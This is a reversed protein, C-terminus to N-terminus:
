RTGGRDPGLKGVKSRRLLYIAQGKTMASEVNWIDTDASGARVQHGVALAPALPGKLAANHAQVEMAGRDDFNLQPVRDKHLVFGTLATWGGSQGARYELVIGDFSSVAGLAASMADSLASM